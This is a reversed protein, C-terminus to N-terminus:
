GTVQGVWIESEVLPSVWFLFANSQFCFCCSQFFGFGEEKNFICAVVFVIIVHRPIGCICLALFSTASYGFDQVFLVIPNNHVQNNRFTGAHPPKSAVIVCSVSFPDPWRTFFDSGPIHRIVSSRAVVVPLVAWASNSSATQCHVDIPIPM